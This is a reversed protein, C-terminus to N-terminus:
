GYTQGDAITKGVVSIGPSVVAREGLISREVVAGAGVVAGPLLVSAAITAGEEVVAGIGLCADSLSATESVRGDDGGLVIGPGPELVADTRFRGALADLNAQLYKEPTGIDMWYADTPLAFMSGAAAVEPFLQREASFVEAAPIRTLTSPEMVYVGANILNTAAEGPPPKEIFETVRGTGDTPVVGFGSPDEVPTLLMTVEAERSRHYDVISGLEFDTLIDGNLVLFSDDGILAEANRIAGATGLPEGETAIEMRIGRRLGEEVVPTFAEALYSTLMVVEYVGSATLRDLVHELHLRNAIPLLHKPRTYTLPRLRTGLGGALILAKL